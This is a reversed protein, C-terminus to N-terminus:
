TIMVYLRIFTPLKALIYRTNSYDGTFNCLIQILLIAKKVLLRRCLKDELDEHVQINFNLIRLLRTILLGKLIRKSSRKYESSVSKRKKKFIYLNVNLQYLSSAILAAGSTSVRECERPLRMSFRNVATLALNTWLKITTDM